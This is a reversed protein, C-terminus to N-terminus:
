WDKVVIAFSRGPVTGTEAAARVIEEAAPDVFVAYVLYVATFCVLLGVADLAISPARSLLRALRSRVAM